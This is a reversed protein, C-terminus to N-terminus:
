ENIKEKRKKSSKSQALAKGLVCLAAQLKNIMEEDTLPKESEPLWIHDRANGLEYLAQKAAKRLDTM